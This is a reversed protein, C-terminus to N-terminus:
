DCVEKEFALLISNPNMGEWIMSDGEGRFFEAIESQMNDQTNPVTHPLYCRFIVTHLLKTNLTFPPILSM